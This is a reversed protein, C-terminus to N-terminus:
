LASWSVNIVNKNQYLAEIVETEKITHVINFNLKYITEDGNKHMKISNPSGKVSDSIEKVIEDLPVNDPNKLEIELSYHTEIKISVKNLLIQIILILLTAFLTIGYMGAGAAMGIGATTWIGTATTLGKVSAGRVFIVGACLFSVGTVINSAIRSADASYESSLPLTTFGYQSVIMFLAAGLALIIHTKIGADKRRISRELGIVAGCLGAFALRVFIELAFNGGMGANIFKNLFELM